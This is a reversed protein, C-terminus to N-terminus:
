ICGRYMAWLVVSGTCERYARSVGRICCRSVSDEIRELYMHAVIDGTSSASTTATGSEVLTGDTPPLALRM